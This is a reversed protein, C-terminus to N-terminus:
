RVSDSLKMAGSANQMISRDVITIFPSVLFSAGVASIFDAAYLSGLAVQSSSDLFFYQLIQILFQPLEYCENEQLFFFSTVRSQVWFLLAQDLLDFAVVYLM